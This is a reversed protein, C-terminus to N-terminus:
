SRGRRDGSNHIRTASPTTRRSSPGRRQAYLLEMYERTPKSM